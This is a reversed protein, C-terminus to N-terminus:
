LTHKITDTKLKSKKDGAGEEPRLGTGKELQRVKWQKQHM